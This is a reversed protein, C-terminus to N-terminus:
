DLHKLGRVAHMEWEHEYLTRGDRVTLRRAEEESYPSVIVCDLVCTADQSSAHHTDGCLGPIRDRSVQRWVPHVCLRATTDPVWLFPRDDVAACGTAAVLVFLLWPATRRAATSRHHM